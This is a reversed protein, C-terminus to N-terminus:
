QFSVVSLYLVVVSVRTLSLKEIIPRHLRNSQPHCPPLVHSHSYTASSASWWLTVLVFPLSSLLIPNWQGKLAMCCVLVQSEEAIGYKRIIMGSGLLAALQPGLSWCISRCPPSLCEVYLSLWPWTLYLWSLHLDKGWKYLQVNASYWMLCSCAVGMSNKFLKYIPLCVIAPLM